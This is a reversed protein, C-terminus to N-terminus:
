TRNEKGIIQYGVIPNQLRYTNSGYKVENWGMRATPPNDAGGTFGVTFQEGGSGEVSITWDIPNSSTFDSNNDHSCSNVTEAATDSPSPRFSDDRVLDDMAATRAVEVLDQIATMATTAIVFIQSMASSTQGALIDRCMREESNNSM